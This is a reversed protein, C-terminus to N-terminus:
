PSRPERASSDRRQEQFLSELVRRLAGAVCRHGATGWHGDRVFTSSDMCASVAGDLSLARVNTMTALSAYPDAVGSVRALASDGHHAVLTLVGRAELKAATRRVIAEYLRIGRRWEAATYSEAPRERSAFAVAALYSADRLREKWTIRPLHLILTDGSPEFFPKARGSFRRRQIDIMDNQYTLLLVVDGRALSDLYTEGALVQQDTGFGMVGRNVFRIGPTKPLARSLVEDFRDEVNV